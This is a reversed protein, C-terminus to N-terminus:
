SSLNKLALGFLPVFASSDYKPNRDKIKASFLDLHTLKTDSLIEGFGQSIVHGSAEGYLFIEPITESTGLKHTAETIQRYLVSAPNEGCTLDFVYHCLKGDRLMSTDIRNMRCSSLIVCNGRVSRGYLETLCRESAFHDIEINKLQIGASLCLNKIFRIRRRDIAIVLSEFIDSSFLPEGLRYYRKSFNRSSEPYFNSIEWQIHSELAPGPESFDLPLVCIFASSPDIVAGAKLGSADGSRLFEKILDSFVGSYEGADKTFVSEEGIDFSLAATM